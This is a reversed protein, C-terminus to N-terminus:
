DRADAGPRREAPPEHSLDDASRLAACVFAVLSLTFGGALGEPRGAMYWLIGATALATGLWRLSAILPTKADSAGDGLARFVGRALLLFNAFGLAAGAVVSVAQAEDFAIWAVLVGPGAWTLTWLVMRRRWRGWPDREAM